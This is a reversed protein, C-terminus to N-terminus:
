FRRTVYACIMQRRDKRFGVMIRADVPGSGTCETIQATDLGATVEAGWIMNRNSGCRVYNREVNLATMYYGDPCSAMDARTVPVVSFYEYELRGVYRCVFTNGDGGFNIGAMAYDAPCAHTAVGNLVTQTEGRDIRDPPPVPNRVDVVASGSRNAYLATVTVSGPTVASGFGSQNVTLIRSDSTSWTVGSAPVHSSGDSMHVRVGFSMNQPVTMTAPATVSVSQVTVPSPPPPTVTPELPYNPECAVLSMLAFLAPAIRAVALLHPARM